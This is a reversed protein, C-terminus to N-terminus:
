ERAKPADPADWDGRRLDYLEDLADWAQEPPLQDFPMPLRKKWAALADALDVPRPRSM